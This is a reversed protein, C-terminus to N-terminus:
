NHAHARGGVSGTGCVVLTTCCLGSLVGGFDLCDALAVRIPM